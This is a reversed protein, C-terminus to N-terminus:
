GLHIPVSSFGRVGYRENWYVPVERMRRVAHVDRDIALDFPDYYIPSSTGVTM